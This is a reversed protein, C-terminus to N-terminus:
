KMDKLEILLNILDESNMVSLSLGKEIIQDSIDNGIPDYIRVDDLEHFPNKFHYNFEDTHYGLGKIRKFAISVQFYNIHIKLCFTKNGSDIGIVSKSDFQMQNFLAEQLGDLEKSTSQIAKKLENTKIPMCNDIVIVKM